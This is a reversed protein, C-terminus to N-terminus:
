VKLVDQTDQGHLLSKGTIRMCAYISPNILHSLLSSPCCHTLDVFTM